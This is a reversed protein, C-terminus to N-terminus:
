QIEELFLNKRYNWLHLKMVASELAPEGTTKLPNETVGSWRIVLLDDSVNEIDFSSISRLVPQFSGSGSRLSLTKERHRLAIDEFSSTLQRDPFGDEGDMDSKFFYLDDVLVVGKWDQKWRHHGAGTTWQLLLLPTIWFNANRDALMNLDYAVVQVYNSSLMLASIM